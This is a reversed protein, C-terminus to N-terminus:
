RQVQRWGSSGSAGGRKAGMGGRRRRGETPPGKAVLVRVEGHAGRAHVRVGLGKAGLPPMCLALQLGGEAVGGLATVKTYGGGPQDRRDTPRDGM